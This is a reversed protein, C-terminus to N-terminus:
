RRGHSYGPIFAEHLGSLIPDLPPRAPGNVARENIMTAIMEAVQEQPATYASRNLVRAVTAPDLDPLAIDPTPLGPSHHDCLMHGVEHLIIHQRHLRGTGAAYFVHDARDTALWLGCPAGDLAPQPHLHLDRGRRAAVYSLFVSLDFPDPVEVDAILRRCEKELKRLRVGGAYRRSAAM